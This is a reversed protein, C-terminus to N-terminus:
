SDKRNEATWGKMRGTLTQKHRRGFLLFQKRGVKEVWSMDRGGPCRAFSQFLAHLGPDSRALDREIPQLARLWRRRMMM